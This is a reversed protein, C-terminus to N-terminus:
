NLKFEGAMNNLNKALSSLKDANSHVQLSGANVEDAAHSVQNINETVEGAVASAQNVNENIEEVGAAAHSVNNSIESTTASQEEMAAAVSTVITNIENIIEVISKIASVSETSTKQVENIRSEIEKTANATQHALEKIESAVVAFGKGAEGARAAEITANLALLNTQESIDAITETVKSIELAANGLNNVKSSVDEAKKVAESTTQSGKATNGAIENITASMEEAAAVITQLNGTTEEMASAVSNMNTTMEEAASAVSNSSQSTQESNASIQRSVASLEASSSTLEGAGAAIDALIKKLSGSMGNISKVLMGVEDEQDIDISRTFDGGAMSDSIEVTKLLPRTIWQITFFSFVVGAVAAICLVTVLVMKAMVGENVMSKEMELEHEGVLKKLNDFLSFVRDLAPLTEQDFVGEARQQIKELGTELAIIEDFLKELHDYEPVVITKFIKIKKELTPANNIKVAAGHLNNHPSKIKAVLTAFEPWEELKKKTEGTGLWKGLKCKGPDTQVDIRTGAMISASVAQVWKVHATLLHFLELSLGEHKQVWIDKIKGASEHLKKHVPIVKKLIKAIEPDMAGLNKADRSNLFKGLTCQTHDVEVTLKEKNEIFLKEISGAWKLHSIELELVKQNYGAGVSYEHSSELIAGILYISIISATLTASILFVTLSWLKTKVSLNKIWALM